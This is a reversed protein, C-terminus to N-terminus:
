FFAAPSVGFRRSLRRIHEKTLERKGHLVDSVISETGFVDVLDKQRLGHAQMLHRIIDVPMAEPVPYQRSEYDEILVTLLDIMKRQARTVARRSTLKELMRLYRENQEPGRIVEPRLESLLAGYNAGAISMTEM